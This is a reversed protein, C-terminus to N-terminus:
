KGWIIQGGNAVAVMANDELGGEQVDITNVLDDDRRQKTFLECIADPNRPHKESRGPIGELVGLKLNHTGATARKAGGTQDVLRLDVASLRWDFGNISLDIVLGVDRV